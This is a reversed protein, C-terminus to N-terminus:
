VGREVGVGIDSGPRADEECGDDGDRAPEDTWVCPFSAVGESLRKEPAGQRVSHATDFVDLRQRKQRKPLIRPIRTTPSLHTKRNPHRVLQIQMLLPLPRQTPILHLRPLLQHTSM